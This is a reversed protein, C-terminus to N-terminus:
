KKMRVFIHNGQRDTVVFKSDRNFLIERETHALNNERFAMSVAKVGAPNEITLPLGQFRIHAKKYNGVEKQALSPNVNANIPMATMRKKQLLIMLWLAM